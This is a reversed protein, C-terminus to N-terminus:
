DDDKAKARKKMGLWVRSGQKGTDKNLPRHVVVHDFGAVGRLREGFKNQPVSRFVDLRHNRACWMQFLDYATTRVISGEHDAEFLEMVMASFPDSAAIIDLELARASEPQIFKGVECLDGYAQVCRLAIGSLERELKARLDVDERDFFSKKFHLKIFRSPLVGTSDNFNLPENSILTLKIRLQGHWPTKYKRGITVSDEGIINLLLEASNHKVGGPSFNQGYVQGAPLRADPFVGVRKGVLCEKSNESQAWNNFSLGVYSHDGVMQRLVHTILGKGARKPGIFMAGKQFKTEETMCYGMWQELFDISQQDEGFISYLFEEWVPCEAAPDWDFRLASHAWLDPSLPRFEQTEVNVLGNQLVMWDTASRREGLWMPPQCELGLELQAKLADIVDNVYKPTPQFRILQEGSRRRAGDLFEYVQQRLVGHPVVEYIQGNWRYWQEQWFWTICLGNMTCHRKVFEKGTDYPAMPSLVPAEVVSPKPEVKPQVKPQPKAAKPVLTVVTPRGKRALAWQARVMEVQGGDAGVEDLYDLHTLELDPGGEVFAAIEAAIRELVKDAGVVVRQEMMTAKSMNNVETREM